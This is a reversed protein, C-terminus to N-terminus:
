GGDQQGGGAGEGQNGEERCISECDLVVIMYRKSASGSLVFSSSFPHRRGWRASEYEQRAEAEAESFGAQMAAAVDQMEKRQRAHSAAM